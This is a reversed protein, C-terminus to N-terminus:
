GPVVPRQRLWDLLAPLEMPRAIHYGQGEQCGMTLLAVWVQADEIGEALVRLGLKRGLQTVMEAIRPGKAEAIQRVFTRDIKIRDLPLRELYSLSSYGTGFDDIAISVGMARLEALTAELYATPLVAVSETIELELHEGLLGSDALAKRVLGAFGHDQLQVVSVNVAMRRPALGKDLLERMTRCASLLVWQGLPAMLGSREAVPVFQDPPVFRGDEARWRILAELGVLEHSHLDLQPQYVLFLREAEFAARLEALMYARARAEAGLHASFVVYHGKHDKKARKLAISADKLLDAGSAADAQLEVYGCTFSMKHAIGEIQLSQRSCAMLTEPNVDGRPGLVGYTDSGVRAIVTDPPMSERLRQAVANLLLDGFRHGMVDNIASFDDIDVLALAHGAAGQRARRDLAEVFSARNPLGVLQDYFAFEHLRQMLNRNRLLNGINVCFVDLLSRDTDAPANLTDIYVAMDSGNRYGVYLAMGVPSGVNEHRQLAELLMGRVHAQPLAELPRDILAAFQGAAALVRYADGGREVQACVLGEAVTGLLGALQTIVGQAFAHLGTEELFDASSRVILELGRRNAEIAVIQEYSRIATTLTTLLKHRTLESKTKYDNIDYRLLTEHEPAYGPQGTRLVIRTAKLGADNRIFDVLELGANETEMVVDLLVLALDGHALLAQRAEAANFAHVFQIPRGFISVGDLAFTTAQHVDADDDVVLVRWARRATAQAGEPRVSPEDEFAFLEDSPQSM